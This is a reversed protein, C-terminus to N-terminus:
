NKIQECMKKVAKSISNRDLASYNIIFSEQAPVSHASKVANFYDSLHDIKIGADRWKKQIVKANQKKDLTFLFHLGSNEEHITGIKALGSNEFATSLYAPSIM